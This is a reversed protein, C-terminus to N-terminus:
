RPREPLLATCQVVDGRGPVAATRVLVDVGYAREMAETTLVDRVPGDVYSGGPHLLVAQDACVFAQEPRHSTFVVTLGEAVLDRVCSLVRVENGLDLNATPEDMMLVAAQQALARAILVLQRQGGSLETFGADALDAVGLRDLAARAIAVDEASPSPRWGLWATRGLLVVDLVRHGFPEDGSQPVYAICRAREARSMRDLPRDGIRAGGRIPPLLGLVTKFLTSKGVGNPGLLAVATGPRIELRVDTLVPRGRYGCTLADVVLAGGTRAAVLQQTMLDM